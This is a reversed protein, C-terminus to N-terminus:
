SIININIFPLLLKITYSSHHMQQQEKAEQEVKKRANYTVMIHKLSQHQKVSNNEVEFCMINNRRYSDTIFIPNEDNERLRDM